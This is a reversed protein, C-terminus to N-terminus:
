RLNRNWDRLIALVVPAGLLALTANLPLTGATSLLRGLLEAALALMAGAFASVVLLLRHDASHLLRRAIHPAVTGIVGLPGCYATAAGALVATSLLLRSRVAAVDIGLNRADRSGLQLADLARADHLAIMAAALVVVAFGPLRSWPVRAFSGFTWSLYAQLQLPDSLYFLISVVSGVLLSLMLGAVILTAENANRRAYTAIIALVAIAGAIAAATLGADRLAAVNPWWAILMPLGMLMLAVGLSAGSDIGLVFPGALPNRFFTQLQLGSIALAAGAIVATVAAPLRMQLVIVRAQGAEDGQGWLSSWPISVSGYLCALLVLTVTALACTICVTVFRRRAADARDRLTDLLHEDQTTGITM